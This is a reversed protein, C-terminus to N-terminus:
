GKTYRGEYKKGQEIIALKRLDENAEILSKMNNLDKFKGERKNKDLTNLREECNIQVQVWSTM